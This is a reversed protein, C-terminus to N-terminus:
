FQYWAPRYRSPDHVEIALAHRLAVDEYMQPEVQRRRLAKFTCCFYSVIECLVHGWLLYGFRLFECALPLRSPLRRFPNCGIIGAGGVIACRM